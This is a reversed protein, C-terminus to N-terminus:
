MVALETNRKFFFYYGVMTFGKFRFIMPEFGAMHKIKLALNLGKALNKSLFTNDNVWGYLLLLVINVWVNPAKITLVIYYKLARRM